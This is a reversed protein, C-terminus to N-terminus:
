YKREFGDFKEDVITRTIERARDPRFNIFIVSDNEEIKAIPEGNTNCIVTPKVFEDFNEQQYAEEIAVIASTAKEGEGKKSSFFSIEKGRKRGM